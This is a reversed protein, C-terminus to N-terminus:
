ESANEAKAGQHFVMRWRGGERKWISSRLSHAPPTERSGHRTARYTVLFVDPSLRKASFDTLTMQAPTENELAEIIQAKNYVRGSSGFEIFDEAFLAAVNETSKRFDARLLSEELRRLVGEISEEAEM